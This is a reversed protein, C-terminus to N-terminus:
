RWMFILSFHRVVQKLQACGEVHSLLLTFLGIVFLCLTNKRLKGKVFYFAGWLAFWHLADLVWSLALGKFTAKVDLTCSLLLFNIFEVLNVFLELLFFHHHSCPFPHWLFSLLPASTHHLGFCFRSRCSFSSDIWNSGDLM